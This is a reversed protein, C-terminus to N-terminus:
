NIILKNVGWNDKKDQFLLIYLGNPLLSIDVQNQNSTLVLQGRTNYIHVNILDEVDITISSSAPNPFIRNPLSTSSQIALLDDANLQYLKPAEDSSGESSFYFQNQGLTTIGEVQTSGDTPITYKNITGTTFDSTSIQSITMIFAESFAYGTLIIANAEEDYTGGTILGFANIEGSQTIQYTGPTKPLSYTNTRFNGRNKTFIYLSDQYCLLTEADFNTFQNSTFDVQNAYSFNIVDASVTTNSLYDSILIRYVKLDTRDGKNNGFDAIYIYTDDAAIDEWDNNTANNIYVRRNVDGTITDIEYLVTEGGSDNHTILRNNMYLLGSTEEVEEDMETQLHVIQSWGLSSFITLSFLLIFKSM